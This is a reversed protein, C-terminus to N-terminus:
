EIGGLHQMLQTGYQRLLQITAHEITQAIIEEVGDDLVNAVGSVALAGHVHEHVLTRWRGATDLDSNIRIRYYGGTVDSGTDGFLTNVGDDDKFDPVLEIRYPEGLVIVQTPFAPSKNKM